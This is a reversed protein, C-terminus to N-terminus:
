TNPKGDDTAEQTSVEPETEPAAPPPYGMATSATAPPIAQGALPPPTGPSSRRRSFVEHWNLRGTAQMLVFLTVVALITVTLGTRGVWFFAYSFAVLYILQAAGVFFLAFKVGAVLRMYSVVLFVSVAACIWFAAHIPVVDALYALLIHFAFFGAAIFLFHMPHMPIDRLLVIVLLVLFFFLLSVPGYYSMRSAIPGANPRQPMVMGMAQSRIANHYTWTARMGGNEAQAPESPSATGDPYDIEEFNTHVTLNFNKLEVPRPGEKPVFLTKHAAGRGFQEAVDASINDRVEKRTVPGAPAYLWVDQGGSAYTFALEHKRDRRIPVRIQDDLVQAPDVALAEGDLHISLEDYEAAGEPLPIVFHGEPPGDDAAAIRYTGRFHATFTSFWLLGKYRHDHDIQVEIDSATPMTKPGDPGAQFFPSVQVLVKPGWLSAIETSGAEDLNDTRERITRGLTVWAISVLVLIVGVAVIRHFMTMVFGKRLHDPKMPNPRMEQGSGGDPATAVSVATPATDIAPPLPPRESEQVIRQYRSLFLAWLGLNVAAALPFPALLLSMGYLSSLPGLVAYVYFLSIGACLMAGLMPWSSLRCWEVKCLGAFVLVMGMVWLALMAGPPLPAPIELPLSLALVASPGLVLGWALIFRFLPSPEEPGHGLNRLLMLFTIFEVTPYALAMLACLIGIM